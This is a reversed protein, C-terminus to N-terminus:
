GGERVLRVRWGSMDHSVPMLLMDGVRAKPVRGVPADLVALYSRCLEALMPQEVQVTSFGISFALLAEVDEPEITM